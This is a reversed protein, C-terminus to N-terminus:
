HWNKLLLGLYLKCIRGLAAYCLM